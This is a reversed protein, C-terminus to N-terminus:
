NGTCKRYFFHVQRLLDAEERVQAPDNSCRHQVTSLSHPSAPNTTPFDKGNDPILELYNKIQKHYTAAMVFSRVYLFSISQNYSLTNKLIM